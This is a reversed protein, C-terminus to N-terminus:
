PPNLGAVARPNAIKLEVCEDAFTELFFTRHFPSSFEGEADSIDLTGGEGTSGVVLLWQADYGSNLYEALLEAKDDIAAQIISPSQGLSTGSCTALPEDHPRVMVATCFEIGRGDLDHAGRDRDPDRWCVFGTDDVIDADFRRYRRWVSDPTPADVLADKAVKALGAIEAALELKMSRAALVGAAGDSISFNIHANVGEAILKAVLQKKMKIKAGRGAAIGQDRARVVELGATKGGALTLGFDPRERATPEGVIGLQPLLRIMDCAYQLEKAKDEPRTV